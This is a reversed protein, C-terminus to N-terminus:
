PKLQVTQGVGVIKKWWWFSKVFMKSQSEKGEGQAKMQRLKAIIEDVVDNGDHGDMAPAAMSLQMLCAFAVTLCLVKVKTMKPM